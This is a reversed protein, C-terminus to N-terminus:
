KEKKIVDLLKSTHQDKLYFSISSIYGPISKEEKYDWYSVTAIARPYGSPDYWTYKVSQASRRKKYFDLCKEIENPPGLITKDIFKEELGEYPLIDSLTTAFREDIIAQLREEEAKQKEREIALEKSRKVREVEQNNKIVVFTSVSVFALVFVVVEMNERIKKLFKKFM